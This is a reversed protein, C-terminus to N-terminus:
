PATPATIGARISEATPATSLIQQTLDAASPAGATITNQLATRDPTNAAVGNRIEEANAGATVGTPADITLPAFSGTVGGSSATQASFSLVGFGAMSEQQVRREGRRQIGTGDSDLSVMKEALAVGGSGLQQGAEIRLGGPAFLSDMNQSFGASDTEGFKLDRDTATAPEALSTRILTRLAERGPNGLTEDTEFVGDGDADRFLEAHDLMKGQADLAIIAFDTGKTGQIAFGGFIRETVRVDTYGSRELGAAVAAVPAPLTIAGAQAIGLGAVLGFAAAHIRGFM